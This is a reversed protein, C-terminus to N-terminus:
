KNEIKKYAAKVGKILSSSFGEYEMENLGTITVGGPTSVKDIEIEPHNGSRLILEAAGKVTQAVIYAAETADFGIEVGGEVAARIFRLAFAIGCSSLVTAAPMLEEAIEISKGLNNFLAMVLELDKKGTENGSISTLSQQLAIATNPMVRFVSIDDGCIGALESLTIGAAISILIKGKVLAPKIEHLVKAVLLPKVAIIIIGANQAADLNHRVITVGSDKLEASVNENIDFILIDVPSVFESRILGAVIARGMNGVGIVAIKKNEM